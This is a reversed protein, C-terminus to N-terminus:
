MPPAIGDRSVTINPANLTGDPQKLAAFVFVKEGPKLDAMTGPAFRVVAVDPSVTITQEGDKYKLVLKAGDASAVESAVTANTMTSNPALDWPGFGENTGRAAEPFILVELAKQTGDPQPMGAIGVFTGEKIDALSMKVVARVPANDALKVQMAAGDRSKVTLTQGNVSEITGRVRVKEPAQAAAFSAAFLLAFAGVGFSTGIRM